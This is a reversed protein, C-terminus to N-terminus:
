GGVSLRVTAGQARGFQVLLRQLERGVAVPDMAQEIVLNVNYVVGGAGAAAARGGFVPRTGAVRGSVVDLARDLHPVADVLGHALGKTSFRGLEAMVTSPSKIGLAKKIAAQMGKAISMMLKEIDKQQGELGKLFGKGAQKGSDYLRDAGVQGLTKTSKDLQSQMSNISKFTNKDAGALASAYAYGQEPGMNLIQRLLSKSLGRKALMDIYKTFQKVQALKSALGGKIGGATVSDADMGLNSLSASERAASTVDSAYKKAEAIKAAIADRKKASDLLKATQKDIMKLLGSEKKGSFATRVDAALDKSVSKIKDRSGTLGDIFGKGVDKALAKTKKSPSAIQLETKIGTVVAGAMARAAADVTGASGKLGQALGNAAATGAGATGAATMGGGAARAMQLRGANLAAMFHDGYKAVASARIVWEGDSLMAPISDSTSTGPGTIRGGPNGGGALRVPGGRARFAPSASSEVKRMQVNIYSTGLVRGILSNSARWFADTAATISINKGSLRDRAAQVRGIDSQAGGTKASVTVSGDKMHTVKYGLAELQREGEKTIASMKVSKADPTKKVAAMFADLDRVADEAKMKFQVDKKDPVKLIKDALKNAETASLGMTQAYAVLKSRGREYIGNVKEWPENADLAATTAADTKAGLDSLATAAAQAKPSNLDLEGNVMKLSGANEKAAKATADIAAEFGIMGGLNSRNVDNLAVIAQRLGDTATKQQDLKAKTDLAQQGFLSMGQAALQNDAKLGALGATYDPFLENIEKQSRGAAKLAAKYPEFSKAAQEAYGSNVASALAQDFSKFDEGLAVMGDGKNILSDLRPTLQDLVPGFGAVRAWSTGEDLARQEGKMKNLKAIFADVTPFTKALEGTTEGTAALTKLSTVLKDVDPPAGRAKTALADIGIAVAGLVGLGGAVKTLTSMRGVVGSIASSVGGFRAARVFGALGASVQAGTVAAVGAIGIRVLRLVGYLKVFVALAEPPVANVLESLANAGTLLVIGMDGGANVLTLAAKALNTLTEVLMPGAERAMDKFDSFGGDSAFDGVARSLDVVGDVAHHLASTSFDAFRDMFADFGPSAMGGGVIQVLRDLEKSAGKALGSTKPLMAQFLAFSHTFVPMTDGALSDSWENYSDKLSSLGVAAEQTAKPMKGLTRQYTLQAQAAGQSHKGSEDVAEQYKGQADTAKKVDAIQKAAAAGFAAVAVAAAGAQAALPALAAAAPIAAGVKALTKELDSASDGAKDLVPSLRDRGTLTFLLTNSAM